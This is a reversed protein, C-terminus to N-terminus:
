SAIKMKRKNTRKNGTFYRQLLVSVFRAGINFLLVMIMLVAASKAAILKADPVIGESNLKWIHVTLTEAPRFINLPHMKSSLDASANLLPTTLGATYILAAAEGFIRGAALIVGTIIQPLAAPITVKVLTQWKTAGLGLSAEKVSHPVDLIATECVRTLGPLNLITIALAGGILTYGWGTLTVFVLLGFLGVVISPLSAMTEICLRIFSLLRGQKAYEALYIGAGLGLPVSILLTLVLMYLSNFLQPGIGGGEKTNSPLGSLFDLDWFGWGKILITIVFYGLLGVVMFSLVYLVGTWITDVTRAKM